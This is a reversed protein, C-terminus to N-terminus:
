LEAIASMKSCWLRNIDFLLTRSANTPDVTVAQPRQASAPSTLTQWTAGADTSKGVWGGLLSVAYATSGTLDFAVEDITNAPM